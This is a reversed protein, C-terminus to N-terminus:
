APHRSEPTGCSFGAASAWTQDIEYLPASGFHPIASSLIGEPLDNSQVPEPVKFEQLFLGSGLTSLVAGILLWWRVELWDCSNGKDESGRERVEWCLTGPLGKPGQM